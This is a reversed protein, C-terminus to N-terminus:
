EGDIQENAIKNNVKRVSTSTPKFMSSSTSTGNQKEDQSLGNTEASQAETTHRNYVDKKKAGYSQKFVGATNINYYTGDGSLEVMLTNLNARADNSAMVIDNKKSKEDRKGDKVEKEEENIQENDINNSGKSESSLGNMPNSLAGVEETESPLILLQGDEHEAQESSANSKQTPLLDSLGNQNEALRM